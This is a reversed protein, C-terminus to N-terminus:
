SLGYGGAPVLGAACSHGVKEAMVQNYIEYDATLEEVAMAMASRARREDQIGGDNDAEGDDPEGVTAQSYRKRVVYGVIVAMVIM